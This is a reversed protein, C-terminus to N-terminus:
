LKRQSKILGQTIADITVTNQRDGDTFSTTVIWRWEGTAMPGITDIVMGSLNLEPAVSFVIEEGPRFIELEDSLLSSDVNLMEVLTNLSPIFVLLSYTENSNATAPLVDTVRAKLYPSDMNLDQFLVNVIDGIQYSM